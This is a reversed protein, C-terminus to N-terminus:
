NNINFLKSFKPVNLKPKSFNRILNPRRISREFNTIIDKNSEDFLESFISKKPSESNRSITSNSFSHKNVNQIDKKMENLLFIKKSIPFIKNFIKKKKKNFADNPFLEKFKNHVNIFDEKSNKLFKFHYGNKNNLNHILTINNLENKSKINDNEKNINNKESFSLLKKKKKFSNYSNNLKFNSEKILKLSESRFMNKKNNNNLIFKTKNNMNNNINYQIVSNIQLKNEEKAKNKMYKNKLLQIERHIIQPNKNNNNNLISYKYKYKLHHLKEKPNNLSSFLSIQSKNKEKYFILNNLHLKNRYFENTKITNFNM